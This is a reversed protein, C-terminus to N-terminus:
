STVIRQLKISNASKLGPDYIRVFPGGLKLSEGVLVTGASSGIDSYIIGENGFNAVVGHVRSPITDVLSNYEQLEVGGMRFSWAILKSDQPERRGIIYVEGPTLEIAGLTGSLKRASDRYTVICNRGLIIAVPDISGDLRTPASVKIKDRGYQGVYTELAEQFEPNSSALKEIEATVIGELSNPM